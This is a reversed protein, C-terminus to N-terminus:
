AAKEGGEKSTGLPAGHERMFAVPDIASSAERSGRHVEFHLHPGSSHGTSGVLGIQQGATVQDGEKVLPRDLMHCYRSIINGAHRIDVYWGCGGPWDGPGGDHSCDYGRETRDCEMHIVTGAAVARIPTGRSAILDVGMHEGGRARFGEGIPASVPRVWGSSTVQDTHAACAGVTKATAATKAAGGSVADVVKSAEPEWKAYADPYGSIQVRQAARTLAMQQWGSITLLKQYFKTAAYQPDRVQEPKGWGASPRQQFLGLSDHDNRDGLDGLNTLHSEQMATAVAIVWGRPPVGLKQGVQVITAAYRVESASWGAVKPTSASVQQIKTTDGCTYAAPKASSSDGGGFMTSAGVVMPAGVACAFGLATLGGAAFVAVRNM